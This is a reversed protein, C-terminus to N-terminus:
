RSVMIMCTFPDVKRSSPLKKAAWQRKLHDHLEARTIKYGSAKAIKVVRDVAGKTEKTLRKRLRPDKKVQAMFDKVDKAPM